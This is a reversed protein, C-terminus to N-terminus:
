KTGYSIAMGSSFLSGGWFALTLATGIGPVLMMGTFAVATALSAAYATDNSIGGNVDEVQDFTLEQM